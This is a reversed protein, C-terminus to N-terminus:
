KNDNSTLRLDERTEPKSMTDIHQYAPWEAPTSTSRRCCIGKQKEVAEWCIGGFVEMSPQKACGPPLRLHLPKPLQPQLCYTRELARLCLWEVEEATLVLRNGPCSPGATKPYYQRLRRCSGSELGIPAPVWCLNKRLTLTGGLLLFPLHLPILELLLHHFHPPYTSVPESFSSAVPFSLLHTDWIDKTKRLYETIPSADPISTWAKNLKVM